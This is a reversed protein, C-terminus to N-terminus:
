TWCRGVGEESLDMERLLRPGLHLTLQFLQLGSDHLISDPGVREDAPSRCALEWLWRTVSARPLPAVAAAARRLGTGRRVVAVDRWLM